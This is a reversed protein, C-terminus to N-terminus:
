AIKSIEANLPYIKHIIAEGTVIKLRVLYQEAPLCEAESLFLSYIV